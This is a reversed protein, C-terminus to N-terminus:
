HKANIVVKMVKPFLNQFEISTKSYLGQRILDYDEKFKPDLKYVVVVYGGDYDYDDVVCGREDYENTLFERFIDMDSPKFLLYVCDEYVCDYDLEKIFANIFGIKNLTESGLNLPKVMF